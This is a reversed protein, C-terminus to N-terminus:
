RWEPLAMKAVDAISGQGSRIEYRVEDTRGDELIKEIRKEFREKTRLPSDIREYHFDVLGDPTGVYRQLPVPLSDFAEYKCSTQEVFPGDDVHAYRTRISLKDAEVLKQWLEEKSPMLTRVIGQKIDAISPPYYNSKIHNKLVKLVIVADEDGFMMEWLAFQARKDDDSLEKAYKPYAIRIIDIAKGIEIANM